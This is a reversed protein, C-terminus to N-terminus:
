GPNNPPDYQISLRAGCRMCFRADLEHGAKKCDSCVVETGSQKAAQSLEVTVIGTPVAIIGYGLIMVLAALMQGLNTQPSIDGYGVTTLTVIAWYISRPISTFGHAEGEIVYMLSGIIIVLTMVTFIFVAIKHRSARLARMLTNAQSMYPMLKLVRFVRLIRLLRIVLLFQTGPVLLSVYTPIIALFDVIGFFSFIYQRAKKVCIIRLLYELTFLATFIWEAQRLVGSLNARIAAVSELMVAIVSLIIAWILAIDFFRGSTTEAEFIVEFLKKQVATRTNKEPKM